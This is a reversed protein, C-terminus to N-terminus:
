YKIVKEVANGMHVFYVGAPLTTMDVKTEQGDLITNYVLAGLANYIHIPQKTFVDSRVTIINNAPNPFVSIKNVTAQIENIGVTYMSMSLSDLGIDNVCSTGTNMGQFRITYNSGGKGFSSLNAIFSTSKWGTSSSGGYGAFRNWAGFGGNNIYVILSDDTSGADYNFYNFRVLM